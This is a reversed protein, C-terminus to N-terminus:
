LNTLVHHSRSPWALDQAGLLRKDVPRPHDAVAKRLRALESDSSEFRRRLELAQAPTRKEPALALIANLTDSLGQVPIPPKATTVALRFKGITHDRGQYKQDLTFTVMGGAAAVPEKLEFVAVHSRGTQPVVAWGTTDNGDIANAAPFGEQAFDSSARAFTLRKPKGAEGPQALAAKFENLVFNGNPARGPGKGPLSPDALVELRVATVGAVPLKVSVTYVDTPPAKGSALVAGDAQPVLTAGKASKVTMPQLTTWTLARAQKEWEAQRAPIQKEYAALQTALRDHEAVLRTYEDGDKQLAQVGAELEKATPPRCLISLFLEEVIKRDDKETAILKAIRNGPDRIADALVPGNILNLVPGLMMGSSRECECASERPPRGFLELFGAPAEVNTDLQQVARQGAPM